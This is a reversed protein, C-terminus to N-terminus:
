QSTMVCVTLLLVSRAHLRRMWCRFAMKCLRCTFSRKYGPGAWLIRFRHSEISNTLWWLVVLCTFRSARKMLYHLAATKTCFSYRKPSSHSFTRLIQCRQQLFWGTSWCSYKGIIIFYNLTGKKTFRHFDYQPWVTLGLSAAFVFM